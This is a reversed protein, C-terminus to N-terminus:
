AGPSWWVGRHDVHRFTFEASRFFAVTKNHKYRETEVTDGGLQVMVLGHKDQNVSVLGWADRDTIFPNVIPGKLQTHAWSMDNEATETVQSTLKMRNAIGANGNGTVLWFPGECSMPLGRYDKQDLLDVLALEMNTDSLDLSQTNQMTGGLYPHSASALPQGDPGLYAAATNTAQNFVDAAVLEFTAKMSYSMKPAVRDMVGYQDTAIKNYSCSYGLGRSVWYIDLNYPNTLTQIPINSGEGFETAQGFGGEQYVREFEQTTKIRRFGTKRWYDNQRKDYVPILEQIGVRAIESNTAIVDPM